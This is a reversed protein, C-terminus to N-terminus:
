GGSEQYYRAVAGRGAALRETYRVPMRYSEWRGATTLTCSWAPQRFGKSWASM